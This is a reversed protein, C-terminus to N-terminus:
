GCRWTFCRSFATGPALRMVGLVRRLAFSGCLTVALLLAVRAAVASGSSAIKERRAPKAASFGGMVRRTVM